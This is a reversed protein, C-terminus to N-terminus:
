YHGADPDAKGAFVRYVYITYVIVIPMGIGAIVLMATLTRPTASANYITLADAADLSSPLLRPYLSLGVLGVLGVLTAASALFADRARGARSLLPLATVAGAMLLALLWFLPRGLLNEFLWPSVSAAAATAALYLVVFATWAGTLWRGARAALAGDAKLQLWAAGHMVFMALTMLGVLLSFPNLLGPLGVYRPGAPELPLGRLVNGVAVGYLLAPLLSGLGFGWDWFRRWRPADVHHRFELSLARFVLAVLLLMFALYFTSFAAAYVPPFAAFLAGGGALLWVENGDWFPGVAALHTRREREGRAFLHLIGVGLDFGDLLAYGGLLVGVLLFWTTNLDM